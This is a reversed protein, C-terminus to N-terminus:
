LFAGIMKPPTYTGDDTIIPTQDHISDYIVEGGADFIYEGDECIGIRACTDLNNFVDLEDQSALRVLCISSTLDSSYRTPIKTLDYRLSGVEDFSFGLIKNNANDTAEVRFATLDPIYTIIDIM